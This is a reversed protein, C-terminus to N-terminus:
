PTNLIKKVAQRRRFMASEEGDKLSSIVRPSKALDELIERANNARATDTFYNGSATRIAHRMDEVSPTMYKGGGIHVGKTGMEHVLGQLASVDKESGWGSTKDLLNPVDKALDEYSKRAQPHNPAYWNNADMEDMKVQNQATAVARNHADNGVSATSANSDFAGRIQDKFKKLTGARFQGSGSLGEVFANAAKTDGTMFDTATPLQVTKNAKTAEDLKKVDDATFQDFDPTGAGTMPLKLQQALVGMNKAISARDTQYRQTANAVTEELKRVELADEEDRRLKNIQLRAQQASLGSAAIAAEKAKIDLPRMREKQAEDSEEFTFRKDERGRVTLTRERTDIGQALQVAARLNPNAALEAKAVDPDNLTLMQIRRVDAAQAEDLMTNKYQIGAVDRQQLASGRGDMAALAAARDIQAGNATLAQQLAGSDQLQKFQDGTTAGYLKAMFDATNNKKVQEWNAEGTDEQKKVLGMLNDFAGSIGAQARALPASADALSPGTVNRWTIPEAM